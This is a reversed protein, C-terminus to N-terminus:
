NNDTIEENAPTQLRTACVFLISNARMHFGVIPHAVQKAFDTTLDIIERLRFCTNKKLICTNKGSTWRKGIENKRPSYWAHDYVM